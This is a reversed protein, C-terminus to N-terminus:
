DLTDALPDPGFRNPGDTGRKILWYFTLCSVAFLAVILLVLLTSFSGGVGPNMLSSFTLYITCAVLIIILLIWWGSHDTDHMRRCFVATNPVLLGLTVVLSIYHMEPNGGSIVLDLVGAAIGVLANFLYFWWYESRSARGQFTAYKSLCTKIADTFGM